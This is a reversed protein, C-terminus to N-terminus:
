SACATQGNYCARSERHRYVGSYNSLVGNVNGNVFNEAEFGTVPLGYFVQGKNSARMPHADKAVGTNISGGHAADTFSLALWGNNGLASTALNSTLTSSLISPGGFTIVNTEHCLSSPPQGPPCPSFGCTPTSTTREERDYLGIGVVDCSLGKAFKSTFPAIPAATGAYNTSSDVYFRKTPFTVVWDSGVSGDSASQWQNYLNNASFVASVADIAQTAAPYPASLLVGGSFVFATATTPNADNVFNLSPNLSGTGAGLTKSTFGDLADANYAYYTGHSVNVVSAAGFLGSSPPTIAAFAAAEFDAEADACDPPVGNKHLTDAYLNSAPDIDGMSIMEFHGENTRSDGTPGGDSLTGTYAYHLFAQYPAPVGAATTTFAPATCSNDTTFIGAGTGSVGADSLKFVTATWVDYKSLFLNFDLVERSNYGELFRVKVAKSNGTTNVVSLLTQQGANVTYYPYLLTQGLGDPNLNVANAMNAIGVVGAIGAVVATTLSNRNM